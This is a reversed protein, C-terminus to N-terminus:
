TTSRGSQLEYAGVGMDELNEVATFEDEALIHVEEWDGEGPWHAIFEFWRQPATM